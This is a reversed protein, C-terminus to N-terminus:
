PAYVEVPVGFLPSSAAVLCGSDWAACAAEFSGRARYAGPLARDWLKMAEWKTLIHYSRSNYAKLAATTHMGLTGPYLLPRLDRLIIQTIVASEFPSLHSDAILQLPVCGSVCVWVCGGM